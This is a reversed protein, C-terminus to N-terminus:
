TEVRPAQFGPWLTSAVAQTAPPSPQGTRGYRDRWDLVSGDFPRSRDLGDQGQPSWGTQQRSAAKVPVIGQNDTAGPIVM